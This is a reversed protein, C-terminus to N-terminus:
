NADFGHEKAEKMSLTGAREGPRKTREYSYKDFHIYRGTCEVLKYVIGEADQFFSNLGQEGILESLATQLEEHWKKIEDKRRELELFRKQKETLM